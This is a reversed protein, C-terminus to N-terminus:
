SHKFSIAKLSNEHSLLIIWADVNLIKTNKIKNTEGSASPCLSPQVKEVHLSFLKTSCQHM